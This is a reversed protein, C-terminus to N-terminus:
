SNVVRGRSGFFEGGHVSEKGGFLGVALCDGRSEASVWSRIKLCVAWCLLHLRQDEADAVVLADDSGLCTAVGTKWEGVGGCRLRGGVSM